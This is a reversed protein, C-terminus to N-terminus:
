VEDPLPVVPEPAEPVAAGAAASLVVEGGVLPLPALVCVGLALPVGLEPLVALPEVALPVVPLPVALVSVLVLPLLVVVPLLALPLPVVM